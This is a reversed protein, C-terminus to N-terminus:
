RRQLEVRSVTRNDRLLSGKGVDAVKLYLEKLREAQASFSHKRAVFERGAEGLDKQLGPNKLLEGVRDALIQANGAEVLFGTKGDEIIEGVGGVDTAVVARAFSLAELIVNPMGESFSANVFVDVQPL